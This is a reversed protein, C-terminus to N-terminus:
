PIIVIRSGETKRAWAAEVQALPVKEVEFRIQGSAALRFFQPLAEMIQAQSASGIGSGSIELGQGRLLGAALTLTPGASEGVEVLRVRRGAARTAQQALARLFAETPPGWVYDVVVDVAGVEALFAAHLSEAAQDLRITADAGLRQLEALAAPNRGAAIVRGAGLLKAFQVALHGAAGTAGLILVTEGAALRAKWRLALWSSM